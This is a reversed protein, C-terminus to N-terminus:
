DCNCKLFNWVTLSADPFEEHRSFTEAFGSRVFTEIYSTVLKHPSILENKRLPFRLDAIGVEGYIHEIEKLANKYRSTLIKRDKETLTFDYETIQTKESSISTKYWGESSIIKLKASNGSINLVIRLSEGFCFSPILLVFLLLIKNKMKFIVITTSKPGM